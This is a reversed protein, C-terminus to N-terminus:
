VLAAAFAAVVLGLALAVRGAAAVGVGAVVLALVLWERWPVYIRSASGYDCRTAGPPWLAPGTDISAGEM